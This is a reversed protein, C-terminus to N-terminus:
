WYKNILFYIKIQFSNQNVQIQYFAKSINGSFLM